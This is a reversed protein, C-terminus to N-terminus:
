KGAGEKGIYQSKLTKGSWYRLYLYPGCGNIMKAEIHGRAAKKDTSGTTAPKDETKTSEAEQDDYAELLGRVIDAVEQLERKSLSGLNSTVTKYPAPKTKM